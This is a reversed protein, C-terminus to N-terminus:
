QMRKSVFELLLNGRKRETPAFGKMRTDLQFSDFHNGCLVKTQQSVLWHM